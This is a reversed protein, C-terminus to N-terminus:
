YEAQLKIAVKSGTFGAAMFCSACMDGFVKQVFVVVMRHFDIMVIILTKM